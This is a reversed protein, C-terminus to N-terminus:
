DPSRRREIWAVGVFGQSARLWVVTAHVCPGEGNECPLEGQLSQPLLAPRSPPPQCPRVKRWLKRLSEGIQDHLKGGTPPQSAATRRLRGRPPSNKARGAGDANHAQECCAAGDPAYILLGCQRPIEAANLNPLLTFEGVVNCIGLTAASGRRGLLCDHSRDNKDCDSERPHRQGSGRGIGTWPAPRKSQATRTAAIGRRLLAHGRHAAKSSKTVRIWIGSRGVPGGGPAPIGGVRWPTM